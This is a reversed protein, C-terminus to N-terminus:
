LILSYFVSYTWSGAASHLVRVRWTRGLPFARVLDIGGAAAGAGPYVLVTRDGAGGGFAQASDALLDEYDNAASDKWELQLTLTEGGGPNASAKLRVIVGRANYNTQDASATTATRVASTLLTVDRNNQAPDYTSGNSLEPHVALLRVGSNGAAADPAPAWPKGSDFYPSTALVATPTAQDNGGGRVARARVWQSNGHDWILLHSGIGPVTPNALADSLVGAAPLETDVVNADTAIAIRQTLATAAGAGGQVGAQGAIPNVKARDSEDWDDLVSLSAEIAAVQAATILANGSADYLVVRGDALDGNVNAGRWGKGAEDSSDVPGIGYRGGLDKIWNGLLIGDGAM